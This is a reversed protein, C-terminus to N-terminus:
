DVKICVFASEAGFRIKHLNSAIRGAERCSDVSTFGEVKELAVGTPHPTGVTLALILTWM